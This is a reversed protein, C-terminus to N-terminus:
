CFSCFAFEANRFSALLEDFSHWGGDICVQWLIHKCELPLYQSIDSAGNGYENDYFSNVLDRKLFIQEEACSADQPGPM